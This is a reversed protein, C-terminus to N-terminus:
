SAVSREVGCTDDQVQNLIEQSGPDLGPHCDHPLTTHKSFFRINEQTGSAAAASEPISRHSVDVSFNELFYNKQKKKKVYSINDVVGCGRGLKAESPQQSSQPTTSLMEGLM